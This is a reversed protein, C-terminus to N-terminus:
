TYWTSLSQPFLTPSCFLSSTQLVVCHSSKDYPLSSVKLRDGHLCPRLAICHSSKDYPLSSAELRNAAATHGFMSLAHDLRHTCLRWKAYQTRMGGVWFRRQHLHALGFYFVVGPCVQSLTLGTFARYGYLGIGVFDGGSAVRKRSCASAHDVMAFAKAKATEAEAATADAAAEAVQAEATAAVRAADKAAYQMKLDKRRGGTRGGGVEQGTAGAEEAGGEEEAGVFAGEEGGRGEATQGDRVGVGREGASGAEHGGVGEGQRSGSEDECRQGRGEGEGRGAAAIGGRGRGRARGRGTPRQRHNSPGARV